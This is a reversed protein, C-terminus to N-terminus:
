DIGILTLLVFLPLLFVAVWGMYGFFSPMRYGSAMAISRVMFNPGNGIYTNAGMFVAGLSIAQLVVQSEPNLTLSGLSEANPCHEAYSGCAMAAFTVYTPANDLFSSLTGAAWFYQWPETVGLADGHLELLATAPIMTLFIGCFLAAVELIPGWSYLNGERIALPTTWWSLAALGVMAIERAHYQRLDHVEPDPSLLLVSAVVLLLLAVNLWGQVTIPEIRRDDLQRRELPEQRYMWTDLAFFIVLLLGMMILWEDWLHTLTWFFPVGRLYGLFLPPDGIPTLAGGVNSVLFIFFIPVHLTHARESNTRLVPRILLMSAGTTGVVNALVAGTALFATNVWPKAPLDAQVLIGGSIVFLSGLLVIFSLYELGAHTLAHAAEEGAHTGGAALWGLWGLVPASWALAVLLQHRPKEWFHPALQPALAITALMGAFPLVMWWPIVDGLRDL